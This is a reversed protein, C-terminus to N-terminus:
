DRSMEELPTKQFDFADSSHALLNTKNTLLDNLMDALLLASRKYKEKSQNLKDQVELCDSQM